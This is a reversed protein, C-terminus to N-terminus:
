LLGVTLRTLARATLKVLSAPLYHETIILTAKRPRNATLAASALGGSTEELLSRRVREFTEGRSQHGTLECCLLGDCGCKTIRLQM